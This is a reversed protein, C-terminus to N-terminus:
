GITSEFEIHDKIKGLASNSLYEAIKLQYIAPADKKAPL